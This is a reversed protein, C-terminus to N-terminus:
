VFPPEDDDDHPAAAAAALDEKVTKASQKSPSFPVWVPRPLGGFGAAEPWSCRSSAGRLAEEFPRRM